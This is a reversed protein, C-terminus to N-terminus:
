NLALGIRMYHFTIFMLIEGTTGLGYLTVLFYIAFGTELVMLVISFIMLCRCIIKHDEILNRKIKDYM